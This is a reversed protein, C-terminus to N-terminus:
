NLMRRYELSYLILAQFLFYSVLIFILIVWPEPISPWALLLIMGVYIVATCVKGYWKAGDLKVGARLGILGLYIMIAEKLIFLIVVLWVWPRHIGLAIILVLQTLKDAVPDLLKGLATIQNFRRAIQGDLFDTLGSLIIVSTAWLYQEQFAFLLFFPILLIRSLSLLNPISKIEQRWNQLDKM